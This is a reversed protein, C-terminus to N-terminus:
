RPTPSLAPRLPISPRAVPPPAEASVPPAIPAAQAPSPSVAPDPTEEVAFITDNPELARSLDLHGPKPAKGDVLIVVRRVAAFNETVTTVIGQVLVKEEEAGVGRGQELEPSFDIYATGAQTFAVDMVRTGAPLLAPVEDTPAALQSVAAQIQPIVGRVYPIEREVRELRSGGALRTHLVIKLVAGPTEVPAAASPDGVTGEGEEGGDAVETRLVGSWWPSTLPVAFLFTAIFLIWWAWKPFGRAPPTSADAVVRRIRPKM